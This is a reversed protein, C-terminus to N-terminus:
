PAYIERIFPKYYSKWPPLNFNSLQKTLSLKEEESVNTLNYGIYIDNDAGDSYFGMDKITKGMVFHPKGKIKFFERNESNNSHLMLYEACDFGQLIDEIDDGKVARIYYFKKESIIGKDEKRYYGILVSTKRKDEVYKLGKQPITELLVDKQTKNLIERIFTKLFCQKGFDSSPRLPFAGINVKERSKLYNPIEEGETEEGPFLIYGGIVERKLNFDALTDGTYAKDSYYIADRYRHMQNIAEDPPTKDEEMQYKADFLYTMKIGTKIDEKTLRLVIDPRQEVTLSGVNDGMGSQLNSKGNLGLQANYIIEALEVDNRKLIIKSEDGHKLKTVMEPNIGTTPSDPTIQDVDEGLCELVINKVKIFCWIEYLEAIDKLEMNLIGDHLDYTYQLLLWDRYITSYGTAQKLTLNEGKLGTFRGIRRFFPAANLRKLTEETSNLSEVYAVPIINAHREIIRRKLNIFKSTIQQLAFKLFRNETTDDNLEWQETAYLHNEENEHETIEKELAPTIHKLKDAKLYAKTKRLRNHPRDIIMTAALCFEEQVTKFLNWWILDPTDKANYDAAFTHYTKRLFSLSLMVYEREIDELIERLDKHYDLKTSMVDFHLTIFKRESKEPFYEIVIDSQGIENGYNLTFSLMQRRQMFTDKRVPKDNDKEDHFPPRALRADLVKLKKDFEVEVLYETNEFFASQLKSSIAQGNEYSAPLIESDHGKIFLRAGEVWKYESLLNDEGVLKLAKQLAAQQRPASIYLSYDQHHLELLTSEEQKKDFLM